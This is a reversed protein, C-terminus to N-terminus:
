NHRLIFNPSVSFAANFWDIHGELKDGAIGIVGLHLGDIRGYIVYTVLRREIQEFGPICHSDGLVGAGVFVRWGFQLLRLIEQIAGFVVIASLM